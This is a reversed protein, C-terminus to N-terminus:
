HLTAGVMGPITGIHLAKETVRNSSFSTGRLRYGRLDGALKRGTIWM